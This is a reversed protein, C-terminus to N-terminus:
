REAEDVYRLQQDEFLLKKIKEWITTKDTGTTRSSM